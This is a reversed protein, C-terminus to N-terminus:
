TARGGAYSGGLIWSLGQTKARDTLSCEQFDIRLIWLIREIMDCGCISFSRRVRDDRFAAPSLALLINQWTHRMIADQQPLIHYTKEIRKKELPETSSLLSPFSVEFAYTLVSSVNHRALVRENKTQVTFPHM